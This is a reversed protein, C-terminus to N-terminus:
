RAAAQEVAAVLGDDSPTAAEAAPEVGLGVLAATTTPGISAALLTPCRDPGDDGLARLVEVFTQAIRPSTFTVWGLPEDPPFLQRARDLTDAPPRKDYAVVEEVGYGATRLGDALDPRADAALPLFVPGRPSTQASGADAAALEDALAAGRGGESVLDVRSRAERLVRSTARGIAAVKVEGPLSELTGGAAEALARVANASTFAIWRYRALDAAARHLPAPDDPPVVAILPLREVTAGAAAFAACLGEAQHAPRTVVVRVGDLPRERNSAGGKSIQKEEAPPDDGGDHGRAQPTPDDPV